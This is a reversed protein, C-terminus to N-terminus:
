DRPDGFPVEQRNDMHFLFDGDVDDNYVSCEVLDSDEVHFCSQSNFSKGGEVPAFTCSILSQLLTVIALTKIKKM